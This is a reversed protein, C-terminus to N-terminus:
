QVDVFQRRSRSVCRRNRWLYATHGEERRPRHRAPSKVCSGDRQLSQAGPGGGLTNSRPGRRNEGFWLRVRWHFHFQDASRAKQLPARRRGGVTHRQTSSCSASTAPVNLRTEQGTGFAM